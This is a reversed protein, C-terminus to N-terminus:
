HRRYKKDFALAIYILSLLILSIVAWRWGDSSSGLPEWWGSAIIIIFPVVFVLSSVMIGLLLYHSEAKSVELYERKLDDV